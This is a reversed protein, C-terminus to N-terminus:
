DMWGNSWSECECPSVRVEGRAKTGDGSGEAMGPCYGSIGGRKVEAGGWGNLVGATGGDGRGGGRYM